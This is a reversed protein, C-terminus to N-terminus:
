KKKELISKKIKIGIYDVNKIYIMKGGGDVQDYIMV